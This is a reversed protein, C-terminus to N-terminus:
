EHKSEKNLKIKKMEDCTFIKSMKWRHNKVIRIFDITM